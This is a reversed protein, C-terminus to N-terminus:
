ALVLQDNNLLTNLSVDINKLTVLLTDSYSGASGDRDLYVGIDTGMDIVTLFQEVNVLTEVGSYGILLDSVDIKDANVDSGILGVKFDTWIDTGNGGTAQPNVLLNFILTDSGTSSTYTDNGEKGNLFNNGTNGMITNALLNGTGNISIAGSLILNEVNNSLTYSATAFVRDVGENHLETVIDGTNDVFYTDNGLGGVLTDTGAGGDLTNIGSNGTIVNNLTNGTGNLNSSGTLVLNEFNIRLSYNINSFVGDVGQNLSETVVDGTNDVYYIDNGAGGQLIDAGVGGDLTNNGSNGLITNVLSNGIGNINSTGSLILNEVNSELTHSATAFIRDTGENFLETVVDGINDVFYTDSGLGGILTDAGAGGDLTNVGSNGVITNNVTNGTANLNLSGILTLNEFNTRLSYNVNAFVSDVGQNLSETVVDGTNDIYYTDNGLGGQMTDIGVGGDLINNGTNGLLTNNLINGTANNNASGSLILNEVNASLTYSISSFIRDTGENTQETVIDSLNDVLYTDNGLGGILTDAGAGGDLSDNGLGGDLVNAGVNGLLSNAVDNGTGNIDATGSLILNEFNSGLVHNVSSFVRDTGENLQEIVVDGIHDIIYTDDGLGGIMEDNSAGGNIIDNGDNGYIVDHVASGIISNNDASGNIVVSDLSGEFNLFTTTSLNLNQTDMYIEYRDTVDSFSIGNVTTFNGISLQSSNVLATAFGNLGPDTFKFIELSNLTINRLDFNYTSAPDDVLLTDIGIGGDYVEGLVLSTMTTLRLTDDGVDGYLKDLGEGGNLTDNGSGGHLFDNGAGGNLTDLGGQAFISDDGNGGDIIDNGQVAGTGVAHGTVSVNLMFTNNSTFTSAGFPYVQLYYTGASAPTYTLYSDLSDFSGLGGNSILSDDNTVLVNGLSDLISIILDNGNGIPSSASFDIDATLTEGAGVNVSFFEAQGITSEVIATVHPISSNGFLPNEDVTWASTATDLSLATAISGNSFSQDPIYLNSSDALVFDDGDNANITNNAVSLSDIGMIFDDNASGTMPEGTYIYSIAM